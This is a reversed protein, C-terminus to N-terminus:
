DRLHPVRVLQALKGSPLFDHALLRLIFQRSKQRKIFREIRLADARSQSVEFVAVLHWDTYKGTYKDTSATNHEILRKWPDASHGVYFQGTCQSQIIYIYFM